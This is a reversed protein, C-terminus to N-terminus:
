FGIRRVLRPKLSKRKHIPMSPHGGRGPQLGKIQLYSVPCGEPRESAIRPAAWLVSSQRCM